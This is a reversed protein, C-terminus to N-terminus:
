EAGQDTAFIPPINHIRQLNLVQWTADAAVLRQVGDWQDFNGSYCSTEMFYVDDDWEDPHIATVCVMCSGVLLTDGVALKDTTLTTVSSM